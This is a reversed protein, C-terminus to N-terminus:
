GELQLSMGMRELSQTAALRYLINVAVLRPDADDPEVTVEVVSVRPEFRGIARAIRERIQERTAVTNPEFLYQRLGCGFEERMIREGPETLLIVRILERVNDEGSSWALRGDADVRPPFSLGMGFIDPKRASM